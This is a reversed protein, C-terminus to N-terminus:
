LYKAKVSNFFSTFLQQRKERFATNKKHPNHDIVGNDHDLGHVFMSFRSKGRSAAALLAASRSLGMTLVVM